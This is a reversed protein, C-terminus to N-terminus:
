FSRSLYTWGIGAFYYIHCNTQSGTGPLLRNDIGIFVLLRDRFPLNEATFFVLLKMARIGVANGPDLCKGALVFECYLFLACGAPGDNKGSGHSRHILREADFQFLIVVRAALIASTSARDLKRRFQLIHDLADKAQIITRLRLRMKTPPASGTADTGGRLRLSFRVRRRLDGREVVKGRIFIARSFTDRQDLQAASIVRGIQRIVPLLKVEGLRWGYRRNRDAVAAVTWGSIRVPRVALHHQINFHGSRDCGRRLDDDVEGVVRVGAKQVRDCSGHM